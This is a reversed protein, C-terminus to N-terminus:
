VAEYPPFYGQPIYSQASKQKQLFLYFVDDYHPTICQHQFVGTSFAGLVLMPFYRDHDESMGGATSKGDWRDRGATYGGLRCGTVIQSSSSPPLPVVDFRVDVLAAMSRLGGGVAHCAGGGWALVLGRRVVLRMGCHVGREFLGCQRFGTCLWCSANGPPPGRWREHTDEPRHCGVAARSGGATCAVRLFAFM